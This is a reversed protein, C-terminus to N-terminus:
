GKSVGRERLGLNKIIKKYNKYIVLIIMREHFCIDDYHTNKPKSSPKKDIGKRGTIFLRLLRFILCNIGEQLLLVYYILDNKLIDLKKVEKKFLYTEKKYLYIFLFFILRNKRNM